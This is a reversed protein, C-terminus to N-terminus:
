EEDYMSTLKKLATYYSNTSQKARNYRISYLVYAMISYIAVVVVYMGCLRKGMGVLDIKYIDGILSEMNYYIGAAILIVFAATASIMTKVLNFSIYDGKFYSAVPITKKGENEEYSAMKCM